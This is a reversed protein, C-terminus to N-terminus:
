CFFCFGDCAVIDVINKSPFMWNDSLVGNIQNYESYFPMEVWYMPSKSLMHSGAFGVIGISKDDFHGIIKEGWNASVFEVDDHVFCLIDGKSKRVGENYASFISYHKGSNDIIVLECECGVTDLINRRQESTIDSQRSCIIVSIM